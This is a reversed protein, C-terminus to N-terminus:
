AEGQPTADDARLSQQAWRNLWALGALSLGLGAFSVVRVLGTLGAADWLFVKAVTLAIVAMAVRQLKLSRRALAQWLLVAGTLLLALTYTYLEGEIIDGGGIYHGHWLRRIESVAYLVLMAAGAAQIPRIAAQPLGKIRQATVLLLIGPLAYAFALSDLLPPGIVLGAPDNLRAALPNYALVASTIGLVAPVAFIAAIGRRFSQMVGTSADARWIQVLALIAWPLAHLSAGWHTKNLDPAGIAGAYDPQLWRIILVNVLMALAAFGLSELVAKPLGRNDPMIRLAVFCAAAVGLYAALVPPLSAEVAWVIGPDAILRFSLIAAGLQVCWGMEPLAFHRDLAVAVVLLVALALTLPTSSTLIFLALAILYIASLAAWASRRGAGGDARAFLASLGVMAAAVAIVHLAWGFDGLVDAAQWNFNFLTVGIPLITVAGFAYALSRHRLSYRAAVAAILAMLGLLLAVTMPAGVEPARLDIFQSKWDSILHFDFTLRILFAGVPLAALDRLGPADDALMLLLAMGALLVFPLLGFGVPLDVPVLLQAVVALLNGAALMVPFSPLRRDKLGQVATVTPGAHRPWLRWEPIVIAMVALATLALLWYVPESGFALTAALGLHGLVLSLVSVWAWRRWADITLGVGAIMLYYAYLWDASEASGGVLMPSSWAGILGVSTLLPGHLWGLVIAAASTLALGAFAVGPGYLGYMLRGATLAVYIAVLGAGSFVSPLYKTANDEEDGYRRRLWEGGAILALGFLIGAAVRVPPPLLGQEIGYQVFFVGALALSIASVVYVWHERLWAFLREAYDPGTNVPEAPKPPKPPGSPKPPAAQTSAVTAAVAKAAPEPPKVTAPSIAKPTAAAEPAPSTLVPATEADADPASVTIGRAALEALLQELRKDQLTIRRRNEGSRIFLVVILACLITYLMAFGTSSGSLGPAFQVSNLVM